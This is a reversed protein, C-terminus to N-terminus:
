YHCCKKNVSVIYECLLVMKEYRSVNEWIIIDNLKSLWHWLKEYLSIKKKCLSVLKKCYLSVIKSFLSHKGCEFWKKVHNCFTREWHCWDTERGTMILVIVYVMLQCHLSVVAGSYWMYCFITYCWHSCLLTALSIPIIEFCFFFQITINIGGFLYIM